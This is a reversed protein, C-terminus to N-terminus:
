VHARGIETPAFPAAPTFALVMTQLARGTLSFAANPDGTVQNTSPDTTQFAFTGPLNTVPAIKCQKATIFGTNAVAAFVTATAGVQVSRSSPLVAALLGPELLPSQVASVADARGNGASFSFGPDGLSTATAILAGTLARASTDPGMRQLLIAAVAAVHPAAASTGCFPNWDPRSTAVCDIGTLDPKLRVEISPVFLTVPGQSSFPEITTPNDAPAAAVTLVEPVASHGFIAGTPNNFETFECFDCYLVLLQSAGSFLTIQVDFECSGPASASCTLRMGELPDDNGDQVRNSCQFFTGNPLRVCLDYDDSAAGFPNTWQLILTSTVGPDVRMRLFEDGGGFNHRTGPLATDFSGPNFFAQYHGQGLNGALTVRLVSKGLQRDNLATLGDEFFPEGMIYIDDVIIRAGADRLANVSQVFFLSTPGHEAYMLTAGPACDAVIELMATGEDETGTAALVEVPGLEGAAQSAALGTIGTSIVGVKVGTGDFGLARAQDCRHIRDGQSVVPGRGSAAYDPPRVKRVFPQAALADLDAVPIWGQVVSFDRNVLEVDLGLGRLAAITETGTDTVWVYVQVRGANDVKLLDSSLRAAASVTPGTAEVGPPAADAILGRLRSGLKKSAESTVPGSSRIGGVVKLEQGLVPGALFSLGLAVGVVSQARGM